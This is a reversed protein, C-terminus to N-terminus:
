AAPARARGRVLALGAAALAMLAAAFVFARALSTAAVLPQALIPSLFQAFFIASTLGGALQGRLAPPALALVWLNSNPFFLGVGVGAVAAGALVGAFTGALGAVAYGAAMVAFALAYVGLVGHSRRLHPFWASGAAATLSAAAVVVGAATGSGVGIARLLFPIQVPIMYFMAVAFFTIAYACAIPVLPFTAGLGPAALVAAARSPEALYLLVPVLVAWGTLYILFPLRWGVDALLGGAAVCAVAGLSMVFSQLGAYRIRADGSYYDGVLATVSTMTGAVAVGLAARSALIAHLDDLVYGATGALGYLVLSGRLIGVRGFRDVLAGAFPACLGIALAPATLVLKSLFEANPATSFAEAMRPLAPAITAASMVTLCAVLLLATKRGAEPTV